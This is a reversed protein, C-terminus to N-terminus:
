QSAVQPSTALRGQEFRTKAYAIVFLIGLVLDMLSAGFVFGNLRGQLFLLTAPVVFSIKELMAPIMMLRYRIPDLSVLIFLVQWAVGLGVFGYFYEPHTIPPPFDRGTRDEMLYMPLLVILGYIGAFRFVIKAFRM